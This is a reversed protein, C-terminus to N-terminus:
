AARSPGLVAAPARPLVGLAIADASGRASTMSATTRAVEDWTIAAAPVPSRRM